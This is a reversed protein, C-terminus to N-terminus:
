RRAAPLALAAWTTGRRAAMAEGIGALDEAQLVDRAVPAIVRDEIAHHGIFSDVYEGVVKVQAPSPAARDAHHLVERVRAWLDDLRLHEQALRELAHLAQAAGPLERGADELRRTLRPFLDVDEDAHHRPAAEALYRQVEGSTVRTADSPGLHLVHEILRQLLLAVRQAREHSAAWLMLPHAFGDVPMRFDILEM